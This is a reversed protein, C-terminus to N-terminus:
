ACTSALLVRPRLDSPLFGPFVLPTRIAADVCLDSLITPNPHALFSVLSGHHSGSRPSALTRSADLRGLRPKGHDSAITLVSCTPPPLAPPPHIHFNCYMRIHTKYSHCSGHRVLGMAARSDDVDDLTVPCLVDDDSSFAGVPQAKSWPM